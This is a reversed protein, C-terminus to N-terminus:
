RFRIRATLGEEGETQRYEMGQRGAVVEHFTRFMMEMDHLAVGYATGDEGFPALYPRNMRIRVAGDPSEDVRFEAGPWLHWNQHMARAMEAPTTIGSWGPGVTAALRRGAEEPTRGAEIENRLLIVGFLTVHMAAREWRQEATYEPLPASQAIGDSPALGMLVALPFAKWTRM